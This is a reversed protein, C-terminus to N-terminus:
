GKKALAAQAKHVNEAWKHAATEWSQHGTWFDLKPSGAKHKHMAVVAAHKAHAIYEELEEKSSGEPNNHAPHDFAPQSTVEWDHEHWPKKEGQPKPSEEKPAPQPKPALAEAQDSHWKSLTAHGKGAIAHAEQLREPAASVQSQVSEPLMHGLGGHKFAAKAHAMAAKKHHEVDNMNAAQISADEAGISDDAANGSMPHENFHHINAAHTTLVKSYDVAAGGSPHEAFSPGVMKAAAGSEKVKPNAEPKAEPVPMAVDPITQVNKTGWDKAKAKIENIVKIETDADLPQWDQGKTHFSHDSQDFWVKAGKPISPFSKGNFYVRHKGNKEWPKGGIGVMEALTPMGSAPEDKQGNGEPSEEGPGYGEPTVDTVTAKAGNIKDMDLKDAIKALHPPLSTKPAAEKPGESEISMSATAAEVAEKATDFTGLNQTPSGTTGNKFTTSKSASFREPDDLHKITLHHIMNGDPDEVKKSWVYSMAGAQPQFGSTYLAMANQHGEPKAVKEPESAPPAYQDVDDSPVSGHDVEGAPHMKHLEALVKVALMKADEGHGFFTHPFSGEKGFHNSAGIKQTPPAQDGTVKYYAEAVEKAHASNTSRLYWGKSKNEGLATQHGITALKAGEPAEGPVYKAKGDQMAFHGSGKDPGGQLKNPSHVEEVAQDHVEQWHKLLMDVHELGPTFDAGLDDSGETAHNHEMHAKANRLVHLADKAVTARESPDLGNALNLDSYEDVLSTAEGTAKMAEKSGKSHKPGAMVKNNYQGITIVKGSKLTRTHTHVYSKAVPRNEMVTGDALKKVPRTALTAALPGAMPGGMAGACKCILSSGEDPDMGDDVADDFAKLLDRGEEIDEPARLFNRPSGKAKFYAGAKMALADAHAKLIAAM